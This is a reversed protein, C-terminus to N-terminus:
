HQLSAGYNTAFYNNSCHQHYSPPYLYRVGGTNNTNNYPASGLNPPTSHTALATNHHVNPNNYYYHHSSYHSSDELRLPLVPSHINNLSSYWPTAGSGGSSVGCNGGGGGGGVSDMSSTSSMVLSDNNNNSCNNNGGQPINDYSFYHHYSSGLGTSGHQDSTSSTMSVSSSSPSPLLTCSSPSGTKRPYFSPKLSNSFGEECRKMKMESNTKSRRRANAFWTKVQPITLGSLNALQQKELVSPYPDSKHNILWTKLLGTAEKPLSSTKRIGNLCITRPPPNRKRVRFRSLASLKKNQRNEEEIYHAKDWIEVLKDHNTFQNEKLIKKVTDTDKKHLAVEAKARLICEETWYVDTNPLENLFVSLADMSNTKSLLCCIDNAINKVSTDEVPLINTYHRWLQLLQQVHEVTNSAKEELHDM